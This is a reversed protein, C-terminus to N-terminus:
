SGFSSRFINYLMYRRCRCTVARGLLLEASELGRAPTPRTGAASESRAALGQSKGPALLLETCIYLDAAAATPWAGTRGAARLLNPMKDYAARGCPM